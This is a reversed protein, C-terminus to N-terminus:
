KKRFKEQLDLQCDHCYYNNEGFHRLRNQTIIIFDAPVNLGQKMCCGDNKCHAGLSQEIKDQGRRYSPLNYVHGVEHAIETKIVENRLRSDSIGNWVRRLSIITGLDSFASGVVFNTDTSYLDKNTFIIAHHPKEIQTPDSRMFHIVNDSDTQGNPRQRANATFKSGSEPSFVIMTNPVGIQRFINPLSQQILIKQEDNIDGDFYVVAPIHHQREPSTRRVKEIRGDSWKTEAVLPHDPTGILLKVEANERIRKGQADKEVKGQQIIIPQQPKPINEWPNLVIPKQEVLKPQPPPPTKVVIPQEGSLWRLLREEDPNLWNLRLTPSNDITKSENAQDILEQKKDPTKIKLQAEIAAEVLESSNGGFINALKKITLLDSKIAQYDGNYSAIIDNVFAQINSATKSRSKFYRDYIKNAQQDTFINWNVGVATLKSLVQKHQPDKSQNVFNMVGQQWALYQNDFGALEQDTSAKQEWFSRRENTSAQSLKEYTSTNIGTLSDATVASLDKKEPRLAEGGLILRTQLATRLNTTSYIESSRVAETRKTETM